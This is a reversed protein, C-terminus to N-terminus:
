MQGGIAQSFSVLTAPSSLVGKVVVPLYFTLYPCASAGDPSSGSVGFANGALGGVSGQALTLPQPTLLQVQRYYGFNGTLGTGALAGAYTASSQAFITKGMDRLVMGGAATNQSLAYAANIAGKLNDSAPSVFGPAYNGAVNGAAPAFEVANVILATVAPVSLYSESPHVQKVFRTVSSM